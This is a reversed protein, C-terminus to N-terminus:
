TSSSLQGVTGLVIYTIVHANRTVGGGRGRCRMNGKGEDREGCHRVMNIITSGGADIRRNGEGRKM